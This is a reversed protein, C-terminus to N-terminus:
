RIFSPMCFGILRFWLHMDTISIHTSTCLPLSVEPSVPFDLIERVLIAGSNGSLDLNLISVSSTSPDELALLRGHLAIPRKREEITITHENCKLSSGLIQITHNSTLPLWPNLSM